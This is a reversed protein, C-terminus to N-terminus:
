ARILEDADDCLAVAEGNVFIVTYDMYGGYSGTPLRSKVRVDVGWGEAGRGDFDASVRYPESVIQIRAARADELRGEVYSTALVSYDSPCPAIDGAMSTAFLAMAGAALSFLAKNM